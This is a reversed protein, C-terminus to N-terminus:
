CERERAPQSALEPPDMRKVQFVIRSSERNAVGEDRDCGLTLVHDRASMMAVSTPRCGCVLWGVTRTTDGALKYTTARPSLVFAPSIDADCGPAARSQFVCPLMDDDATPPRCLKKSPASHFFTHYVIRKSQLLFFCKLVRMLTLLVLSSRSLIGSACMLPFRDRLSWM